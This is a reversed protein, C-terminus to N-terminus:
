KFSISATTTGPFLPNDNWTRLMPSLKIHTQFFFFFLFTRRGPLLSLLCSFSLWTKQILLYSDAYRSIDTLTRHRLTDKSVTYMGPPGLNQGTGLVPLWFSPLCLTGSELDVWFASLSLWSLSYAAKNVSLRLGCRM